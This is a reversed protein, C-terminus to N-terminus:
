LELEAGLSLSTDTQVKGAAPRSDHQLEFFTTLAFRETLDVSLKSTSDLLVRTEGFVDPLLIADERLHVRENIDYRFTLGVAPSWLTVDPLSERTPVYQFRRDRAVSGGLYARLLLENSEEKRELVTFGAGLEAETRLELSAPHDTEAGLFAYASLLRTFRYDGRAWGGLNKATVEREGEDEAAANGYAGDAELTLAWVPSDYEALADGTLTFARSNGTFFSAGLGFSGTWPGEDEDEDECDAEAEVSAPSPADAADDPPTPTQALAAFLILLPSM